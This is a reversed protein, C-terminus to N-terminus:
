RGTRVPSRGCRGRPVRLDEPSAVGQEPAIGDFHAAIVEAATALEGAVVAADQAGYRGEVATAGQDWNLFQPGDRTLMLTLREEYLRLVDRVHCGYELASWTGPDPRLRPDGPGTLVGHLDGAAAVPLIPGM